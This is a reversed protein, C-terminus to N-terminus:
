GLASSDGTGITRKLFGFVHGYAEYDNSYDKNKFLQYHDGYDKYYLYVTNGWHAKEKLTAYLKLPHLQPVNVDKGMCTILIPPYKGKKKINYLPAYTLM